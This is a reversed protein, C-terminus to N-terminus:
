QVILKKGDKVLIGKANTVRQGALNYTASPAVDTSVVSIGQEGTSEFSVQIDDVYAAASAVSSVMRIRIQAGVPIKTRSVIDAEKGKTLIGSGELNTWTEGDTSYDLYVQVRQSGNWVHFSLSRVTKTLASSTLNGSRLLKVVHTGNGLGDAVPDVTANALTWQCFAGQQDAADATTVDMAEFDEVASEYIDKGAIFTIVGDASETIDFLDMVAEKGSWSLLAPTTTATLDTVKGLGPFPTYGTDMAKSPVARVVDLYTHDPNCNVTNNRWVNSNTTEARWVLLGHGLLGRDWDKKQRNEIYYDDNVTGTKILYCQNSTNFPELQYTGAVDLVKPEVFGLVHREFASYGVPSLGNDFDAGAAMLDWTSPTQAQGHEDYDTDYHDALGLVHSFEHCMTGIGDLWVHKDKMGEYDQIEVSCAYRGFYKGDYRMGSYRSYYSFDNAHPWTYKYSNGQVYSGYGAYIFYVMDIVGDSNLDYNTFDVLDNAKTMTAKLINVLRTNFGSDDAGSATKPSPYECSYDITIPGVVDFTPDFMGMSNDYFYDRTSGTVDMEYHTHSKDVLNKESTMRQYFAQPDDMTFKRDNWEVLVVLGKFNQYNIRDWINAARRMGPKTPAYNGAYLQNAMTKFEKASASMEPHVNRAMGALFAQEEAQRVEPNRAIFATPKLGEDCKEAYRYFGDDGKIVTYGDTTTMFSLFEDGRMLLTVTSGDPQLVDVPKSYGPRAWSTAVTLLMVITLAIKKM